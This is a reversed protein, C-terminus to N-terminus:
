EQPRGLAPGHCRTPAYLLGAGPAFRKCRHRSSDGGIRTVFGTKFEIDSLGGDDGTM